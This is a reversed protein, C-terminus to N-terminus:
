DNAWFYSILGSNLSKIRAEEVVKLEMENIKLATFLVKEMMLAEKDQQNAMCELYKILVTKIFTRTTSDINEGTPGVQGGKKVRTNKFETDEDSSGDGDSQYVQSLADDSDIGSNNLNKMTKQSNKRGGITKEKLRKIEDEKKVLM